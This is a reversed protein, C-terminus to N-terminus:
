SSTAKYRVDFLTWTIQHSCEKSILGYRFTINTDNQVTQNADKMNNVEVTEDDDDAMWYIYQHQEVVPRPQM